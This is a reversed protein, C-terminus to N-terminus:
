LDVLGSWSPDSRTAHRILTMHQSLEQAWSPSQHIFVSMYTTFATTCQEIDTIKALLNPAKEAKIVSNELTLIM